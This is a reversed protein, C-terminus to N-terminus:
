QLRAFYNTGGTLEEIGKLLHENIFKKLHWVEQGAIRVIIGFDHRPDPRYSEKSVSWIMGSSPVLFALGGPSKQDQKQLELIKQRITFLRPGVILLSAYVHFGLFKEGIGDDVSRELEFMDRYILEGGVKLRIESKFSHMKWLEGSSLRGAQMWDLVLVSSDISSMEVDIHQRFRSDKYPVLPDPMM